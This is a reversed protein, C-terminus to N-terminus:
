GPRQEFIKASFIIKPSKKFVCDKAFFRVIEVSEKHFKRELFTYM